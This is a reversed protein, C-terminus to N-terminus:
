RKVLWNVEREDNKCCIAFSDGPQFCFPNELSLKVEIAKKVADDRSLQQASVLKTQFINSSALPFKAGNQYPSSTLTENENFQLDLYNQILPPLTLTQNTLASFNKIPSSNLVNDNITITQFVEPESQNNRVANQLTRTENINVKGMSEPETKGNVAKLAPSSQVECQVPKDIKIEEIKEGLEAVANTASKNLCQIHSKLAPFLGDIWPEVTDEMGVGDDAFATSYFTSAGRARLAKELKKPGGCYTSYNSDGLGLLAYHIHSLYDEPLTKRNIKRIFKRANEPPDGDGECIFM